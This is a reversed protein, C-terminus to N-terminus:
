YFNIIEELNVKSCTQCKLLRLTRTESWGAEEDETETIDIALVSFITKTNCHGCVRPTTDIKGIKHEMRQEALQNM